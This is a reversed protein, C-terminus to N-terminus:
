SVTWNKSTAIAIEESTLKAINTSGLTLKQSNKDSIDYLNNIISILSDHTLNKSSSLKYDYANTSVTTSFGMGINEIGNFDQLNRCNGFTNYM